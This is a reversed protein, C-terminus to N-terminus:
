KLKEELETLSYKKLAQTLLNLKLEDEVTETVIGSGEGILDKFFSVIEKKNNVYQFRDDIEELIEILDFDELDFDVDVDVTKTAM